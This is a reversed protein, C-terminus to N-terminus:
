IHILSLDESHASTCGKADGKELMYECRKCGVTTFGYREIDKQTVKLDRVGALKPKVAEECDEM